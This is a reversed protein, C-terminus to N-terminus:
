FLTGRLERRVADLMISSAVLPSVTEFLDKIDVSPWTARYDKLLCLIPNFHPQLQNFASSAKVFDFPLDLTSSFHEFAFQLYPNFQDSSLLLRANHRRKKSMMVEAQIEKYLSRYQTWVLKPHGKDPILVIKIDTYYALLLDKTTNIPRDRERWYTAWRYFAPNTEISDKLDDLLEHTASVMDLCKADTRIDVANIVIIAYPLMPQNTSKEIATAAWGILREIELELQRVRTTLLVHRSSRRM